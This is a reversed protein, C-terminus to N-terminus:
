IAIHKKECLILVKEKCTERSKGKIEGPKQSELICMEKRLKLERGQVKKGLVEKPKERAKLVRDFM